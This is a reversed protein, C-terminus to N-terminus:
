RQPLRRQRGTISILVQTEYESFLFEDEYIIAHPQAKVRFYAVIAEMWMRESMGGIQLIKGRKIQGELQQLEFLIM